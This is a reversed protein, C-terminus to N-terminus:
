GFLIPLLVGLGLTFLWLAPAPSGVIRRLRAERAAVIPDLLLWRTHRRELLLFIFATVAGYILYGILLPLLVSANEATWSIPVGTIIPLLTLSGAFWWILGYLLGWLIGSGFNPAERLFLAGYSMGLLISFLMNLLFGVLLSSGGMLGAVSPLFGTFLLVLSFLFGSVLSAVAGWSLSYLFRTGAGEPERNIPDSGTFFGVWLRDVAAYVLGVILGYIIHGVLSGFLANGQAYSWDVPLGLWAPMITLPGLFWWFMGYAMGWGLSSGLGRVDRQFLVGFSAGIIVAIIFHLTVGVMSSSMNVLGAILPFFNVQEMWKGFAWGGIIGALGGVVLARALSFREGSPTVQTSGWAGLSLGLPAGICLIYVALEQFHIQAMDLMGMKSMGDMVVPVIGTPVALWLVFAYGLGWILGAGPDTTHRAGVLAFIFGYLGGALFGNLIAAQTLAAGVAGGLGGIVGGLLIPILQKANM